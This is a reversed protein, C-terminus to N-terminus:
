FSIVLLHNNMKILTDNLDYLYFDVNERLRIKKKIESYSRSFKILTERNFNFFLEKFLNLNKRLDKIIEIKEKSIKNKKMDIAIKKIIDGYDELLSVISYVFSTKSFDKYGEKNLRRLCFNSFKNVSLDMEIIPDSNENKEIIRVLEEGMSDLILFIRRILDDIDQNSFGTIDKIILSNNTQKMIEYGLLENIVRKQFDTIESPDSFNVEIEDVGKLYLSLLIRNVLPNLGSVDIKARSSEKSTLENSIILRNDKDDINVEDGKSVKNRKIWKSPLSVMMTAAGQKVIKRKM